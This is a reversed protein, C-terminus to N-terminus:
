ESTEARREDLPPLEAVREAFAEQEENRDAVTVRIVDRDIEESARFGTVEIQHEGPEMAAVVAMQSAAAQQGDVTWSLEDVAVPTGSVDEVSARLDVPQDPPLLGVDSPSTIQIRIGTSLGKLPGSVTMSSRFGDSASVALRGTPGPLTTGDVEFSNERLGAALVFPTQEDPWYFVTFTVDREHESNWRLRLTGPADGDVALEGIRPPGDALDSRFIELEEPVVRRFVLVRASSHMPVYATM